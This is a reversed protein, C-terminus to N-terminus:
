KHGGNFYNSLFPVFTCNMRLVLSRCSMFVKNHCTSSRIGYMDFVRSFPFFIVDNALSRDFTNAHSDCSFNM